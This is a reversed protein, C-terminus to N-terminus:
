LCSLCTMLDRFYQPSYNQLKELEKRLITLCSHFLDYLISSSLILVREQEILREITKDSVLGFFVKQVFMCRQQKTLLGYPFGLKMIICYM